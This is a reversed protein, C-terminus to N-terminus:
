VQPLAPASFLPSHSSLRRSPLRLPPHQLTPTPLSPSAGTIRYAVAFIPTQPILSVILVYQVGITLYSALRQGTWQHAPDDLEGKLYEAKTDLVWRIVAYNIPVGLFSGFIQSFFVDRPPIHMYHGIKMDQLILQARYWADGAISGYVSAGAPNKFGEVANVMLGYFLENTTGIALQFNSLAYLWGLPIVVIAGTAIAVFYTWVPIFIQGTAVITILCVFSVGFLAIFWLLPVEPYSRQLISLQDEYQESISAGGKRSRDRFKVFAAKVQRYGFLAMWVIASTYSAYDFFMSWLMQTGVFPPGLEQYATENFTIDKTLL